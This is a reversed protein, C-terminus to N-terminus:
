HGTGRLMVGLTRWMIALDYTFSLRHWYETDFHSRDAFATENRGSVQWLGTIGPRMAYYATGTYMDQQSELMPRPGILAMEGRLVNWLQPLEDLSCQRLIRGVPTCRPDFKLKQTSDWEKRASPHADLYAFLKSDADKVMTRLKLMHYIRGGKGIRRQWYFPSHGDTSIALALLLILPVTVVSTLLVFAVELVRKMQTRYLGRGLRPGSNLGVAAIGSGNFAHKTYQLTM